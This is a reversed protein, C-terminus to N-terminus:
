FMKIRCTTVTIIPARRLLVSKGNSADARLTAIRPEKVGPHEM